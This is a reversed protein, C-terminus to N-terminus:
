RRFESTNSSAIIMMQEEKRKTKNLIIKVKIMELFYDKIMKKIEIYYNKVM